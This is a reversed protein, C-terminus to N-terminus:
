TGEKTLAPYVDTDTVRFYRPAGKRSTLHWGTCLPCHYVSLGDKQGIQQLREQAAARAAFEDSFRRKKQCNFTVLKIPPTSVATM